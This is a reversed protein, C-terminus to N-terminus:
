FVREGPLADAPPRVPRAQAQDPPSGPHAVGLTLADSDYRGVRRRGLNVVAVVLTGVLDAEDVLAFQGVSTRPGLGGVDLALVRSPVRTGVALPAALVRAVRADLTSFDANGQSEM